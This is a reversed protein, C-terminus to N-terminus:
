GPLTLDQCSGSEELLREKQPMGAEIGRGDTLLDRRLVTIQRSIVTSKAGEGATIELNMKGRQGPVSLLPSLTGRSDTVGKYQAKEEKGDLLAIKVPIGPMIAGDNRNRVIVRVSFSSGACIKKGMVLVVDHDSSTLEQQWVSQATCLLVVFLIVATLFLHQLAGRWKM